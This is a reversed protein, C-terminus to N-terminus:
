PFVSFLDTQVMKVLGNVRGEQHVAPEQDCTLGYPKSPTAETQTCEFHRLAPTAFRLSICPM